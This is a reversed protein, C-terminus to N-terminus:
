GNCIKLKGNVTSCESEYPVKTTTLTLSDIPSGNDWNAIAEIVFPDYVDDCANLIELQLGIGPNAWGFADPPLRPVFTGNIEDFTINGIQGGMWDDEFLDGLFPIDSPDFVDFVYLLPVTIAIAVCIVIPGWKALCSRKPPQQQEQMLQQQRELSLVVDRSAAEQRELSSIREAYEADALEQQIRRAVIEDEDTSPETSGSASTNDKSYPFLQPVNSGGIHNSFGTAPVQESRALRQNREQQRDSEDLEAQLRRAYDEDTNNSYNVVEVQEHQFNESLRRAYEEDGYMQDGWAPRDSTDEVFPPVPIPIPPASSDVPIHDQQHTSPWEEDGANENGSRHRRRRRQDGNEESFASDRSSSRSRNKRSKNRNRRRRRQEGNEESFASDRSSSSRSRNSRSKSKSKKKKSSKKKRKGEDDRDNSRSRNRQRSRTRQSEQQQSETAAPLNPSSDTGSAFWWNQQEERANRESERRIFDRRYEEQLAQAYAADEAEQNRRPM